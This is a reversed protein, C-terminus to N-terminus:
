IFLVNHLVGTQLNLFSSCEEFTQWEGQPQRGLANKFSMILHFIEIQVNKIFLVNINCSRPMTM